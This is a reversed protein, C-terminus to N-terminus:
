VPHSEQYYDQSTRNNVAEVSLRFGLTGLVKTLTGLTPNGSASLTRYLQPRNLHTHKSLWDMGGKAEVLTRLALLFAEKNQDKQYDELAAQLYAEAEEPNNKLREIVIARYKRMSIGGYLKELLAKSICYRQISFRKDGGCLLIVLQNGKLGFYVRYGPGFFFRLEFLGGGLSKSDGFNGNEVRDLRSMIRARDKFNKISDLFGIFPEKGDPAQYVIIEVINM